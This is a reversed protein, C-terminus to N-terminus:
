SAGPAIVQMLESIPALAEVARGVAQDLTLRTRLPLNALNRRALPGGAANIASVLTLLGQAAAPVVKPARAEIAPALVRVMERTATLDAALSTLDSNSGYDDDQTLSDRLADELIEHARLVWGNLANDNNPLDQSVLKPTLQAAFSVLKGADNAAAAMDRRGWLDLEVKHFGTFSPNSTTGPLGDAEGDIQEGLNGFAGYADDDQGLELWTIHATLWDHEAGSLNGSTAAARLASLQPRLKKLLLEVYTTYDRLPALLESQVVPAVDTPVEDSANPEASDPSQSQQAAATTATQSVSVHSGHSAGRGALLVAVLCLVLALSRRM